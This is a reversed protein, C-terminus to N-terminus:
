EEESPLTAPLPDVMEDGYKWSLIGYDALRPLHEQELRIRTREQESPTVETFPTANCRSTVEMAVRSLPTATEQETLYLILHRRQEKKLLTYVMESTSILVDPDVTELFKLLEILVQERDNPTDSM